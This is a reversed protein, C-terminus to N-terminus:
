LPLRETSIKVEVTPARPAMRAVTRALGSEVIASARQAVVAEFQADGGREAALAAAMAAIKDRAARPHNVMFAPDGRSKGLPVIAPYFGQCEGGEEVEYHVNLLATPEAFGELM